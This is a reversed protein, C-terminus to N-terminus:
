GNPVVGETPSQLDIRFAVPESPTLLSIILDLKLGQAKLEKLIEAETSTLAAVEQEIKAVKTYISPQRTAIAM